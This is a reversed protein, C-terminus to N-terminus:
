MYSSCTPGLESKFGRHPIWPGLESALPAEEEHGMHHFLNIDLLIISEEIELGGRNYM